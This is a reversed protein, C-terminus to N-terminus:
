SPSAENLAKIRAQGRDIGAQYGMSESLQVSRELYELADSIQGMSAYSEGLLYLSLSCVWLLELEEALELARNLIAIANEYQQLEWYVEGLALRSAPIYIKLDLTERMELSKALYDLAGELDGGDLRIFGLQRLAYAEEALCKHKQSTHLSREFYEKASDSQQSREYIQGTVLLSESIARFDRLGERIQLSKALDSLADEFNGKKAYYAQNNIVSGRSKLAQAMLGPRDAAAALQLGQNIVEITEEFNSILISCQHEHLEGLNVWLTAQDAKPASRIPTTTTLTTLFDIAEALQGDMRWRHAIDCASEVFNSVASQTRSQRENM